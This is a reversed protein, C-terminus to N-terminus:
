FITTFKEKEEETKEGKATKTIPNWIGGRPRDDSLATGTAEDYDKYTGKKGKEGGVMAKGGNDGPRGNGRRGNSKASEMGQVFRGKILDHCAKLDKQQGLIVKNQRAVTNMLLSAVEKCAVKGKGGNM